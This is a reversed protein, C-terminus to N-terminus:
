DRDFAYTPDYEFAGTAANTLAFTGRTPPTVIEVTLAEGDPEEDNALLGGTAADLYITGQPWPQAPVDDTVIPRQDSGLGFTDDQARPADPVPDFAVVVEVSDPSRDGDANVAWYFFSMDGDVDARPTATFSGDSRLDVSQLGAPLPTVLEAGAPRGNGEADNALVGSAADVSFPVDETAGTYSDPVASLPEAVPALTITVTALASTGGPGVARYTFTVDGNANAAPTYTFGGDNELNLSGTAPATDLEARSVPGGGTDNALVGQAAAVSLTEDETGNYADDQAVPAPPVLTIEVTAPDSAQAGSVLRYTFRDTGSTGANPTYTFSGDSALSVSGSSPNSLLEVTVSLNPDVSDNARVGQAATVFLAVEQGTQYQDGFARLIGTSIFGEYAGADRAAGQLRVGGALDIPLPETTIGDGDLDLADDSIPADAADLAPSGAIVRYDGLANPM